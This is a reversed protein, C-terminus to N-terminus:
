EKIFYAQLDHAVQNPVEFHIKFGIVKLTVYRSDEYYILECINSKKSPLNEQGFKITEEQIFSFTGLVNLDNPLTASKWQKLHLKKIFNVIDNEQQLREVVTSQNEDRVIIEQTKWVEEENISAELNEDQCGYLPITALSLAVLLRKMGMVGKLM